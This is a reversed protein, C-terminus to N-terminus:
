NLNKKKKIEKAADQESVSLYSINILLKACFATGRGGPLKTDM